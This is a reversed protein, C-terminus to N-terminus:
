IKGKMPYTPTCFTEVPLGESAWDHVSDKLQEAKFGNKRLFDVADKAYFCYPGRCYAVIMKSKPLDKLRAKLATIPISRAFPLHATSFEDEPRVDLLIVDGSKARKLLTERDIKELVDAQGIALSLLQEIEAIRNRSFKSLEVWFRAVQPDSLKYYVYKGDKRSEVLRAAKLEKLQASANKIGLEAQEALLEVSKEGQSLLDIIELRKPNGLAKTVTAMHGYVSDKIKRKM